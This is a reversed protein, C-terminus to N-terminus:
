RLDNLGLEDWVFSFDVAPGPRERDNRSEFDKLLDAVKRRWSKLRAAHRPTRGGLAPVSLDMWKRYYDTFFRAELEAKVDPPLDDPEDAGAGAEKAGRKLDHLESLRYRVAGPAITEILTRVRAARQDSAVGAVLRRGRIQLTALIRRQESNSTEPKDLWVFRGDGTDDFDAQRGFAGILANKDLVDFLLDQLHVLDGEVTRMTPLPREFLALWAQQVNPAAEKFFTTEDLDPRRRRQQAFSARLHKLLDMMDPRPFALIAGNIEPTGQPGEIIRIFMTDYRHANHTALRETVELDKQTWLDRLSLGVDRRVERVEYPRMCSAAMRQVFRTQGATIRNGVTALFADVLRAGDSAITADFLYYTNFAIECTQDDLADPLEGRQFRKLSPGFYESAARDRAAQFGPSAGMSLMLGTVRRSEDQGFAPLKSPGGAGCCKKYKKGSGCDCPDNRGPM